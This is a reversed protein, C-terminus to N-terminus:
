GSYGTAGQDRLEIRREAEAVVQRRPVIGARHLGIRQRGHKFRLPLALGRQAISIGHLHHKGSLDRAQCLGQLVPTVLRM